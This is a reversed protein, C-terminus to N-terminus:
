TLNQLKKTSFTPLNTRFHKVPLTYWCRKCFTVWINKWWARCLSDLCIKM